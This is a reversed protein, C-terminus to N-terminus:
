AKFLNSGSDGRVLPAIPDGGLVAQPDDGLWEGIVGRYVSRFDTPVALNGGVLNAPKCGPWQAALGGRVASGSLMMLGGAGHDTGAAANEGVRRGFESFLLTAVNQEIGRSVLDAKFAALNWSLEKLQPDQGTLQTGHTDFSGWHITIVRTGVNAAILQAALKLRTALTGNGAGYYPVATNAISSVTKGTAYTNVAVGYTSRSRTLYTNGAGAPVGALAAMQANIDTQAPQGAPSAYGSANMTFGLASLSPIACVPNVATRIAKSLATDISVAQLPNTTSGVRDIYRGLWGTTTKGSVAGSFWIDSNDFHSLSYKIADVAPMVALDSGTGGFGDGYLADLGYTASGNDGGGTSTMLPNSFALYSGAPGALPHSGVLGGTGTTTAGQGRHIATRAAVYASYDGSEAPVITNLGDNGGALYLMVLVKPPPADAAAAVSEWISEWGLAKAGYVSAVGAVGFQMLRRRTLDAPSRGGPFGDLAAYPIPLAQQPREDRVRALEIEECEICRM